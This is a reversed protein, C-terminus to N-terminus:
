QGRYCMKNVSRLQLLFAKLTLNVSFWLMYKCCRYHREDNRTLGCFKFKLNQSYKKWYYSPDLYICSGPVVTQEPVLIGFLNICEIRSAQLVTFLCFAYIHASVYLQVHSCPQTRRELRNPLRVPLSYTSDIPKKRSLRATLLSFLIVAESSKVTAYVCVNYSMITSILLGSRDCAM